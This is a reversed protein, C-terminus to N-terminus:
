KESLLAIIKDKMEIIENKSRITEAQSDIVAKNSINISLLTDVKIKLENLEYLHINKESQEVVIDNCCHEEEKYMEGEGTILWNLNLTPYARAIEVIWKSQVDTNNTIAKRILGNSANISQEFKRVSIGEKDILKHIRTIM